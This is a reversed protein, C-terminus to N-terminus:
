DSIWDAIRSLQDDDMEDLIAKGDLASELTRVDPRAWCLPMKDLTVIKVTVVSIGRREQVAQALRMAVRRWMSTADIRSTDLPSM